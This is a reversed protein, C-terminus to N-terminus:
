AVADLDDPTSIPGACYFLKYIGPNVRSAAEFMRTFVFSVEDVGVAGTAASSSDLPFHLNACIADAGAEAMRRADMESYVFPLTFLGLRSAEAIFEAERDFCYGARELTQRLPGEYFGISPFNNVGDLGADAVRRLLEKWDHRPDTPSLGVIVPKGGARPMIQRIAPELIIENANGMPLYAGLSPVGATRFMGGSAILLFDAGGALLHRSSIGSGVAAGILKSDSDLCERFYKAVSRSKSM